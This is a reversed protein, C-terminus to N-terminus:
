IISEGYTETHTEVPELDHTNNGNSTCLAEKM